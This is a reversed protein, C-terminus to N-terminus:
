RDTGNADAPWDDFANAPREVLVEPKTIVSDADVIRDDFLRYANGATGKSVGLERGEAAAADAAKQEAYADFDASETALERLREHASRVEGEPNAALNTTEFPDAELDFLLDSEDRFRVYKYRGDRVVRFECGEPANDAWYDSFVPGRDPETGTRVAASLDVGDLDAPETVDCLGCLTPYLDILNVPTDIRAADRNGRRQGPLQMVLPVRTAGEHWTSKGTLGHEGAMEGHDSAYVVITNELFGARELSGLFDGLMEDLFDVCAMYHARERLMRDEDDFSRASSLTTESTDVDAANVPPPTGDPWYREVHRRPATLPSHPRSVSACLLWPQEPNDVSHERLWALSEQAVIREQLQSEPYETIGTTGHVRREPSVPEYQHGNMGLLDGYPRDDFGAFQRDGGLHMKGVLCTAYGAEGFAEPLTTHEPFLVSGNGWAGAGAMEKGTLTSLRSPTCLPVPCYNHEFTTGREVLGDLTPTRVPADAEDRCSLYRHHHQDSFVFLVNPQNLSM